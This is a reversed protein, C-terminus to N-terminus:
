CAQAPASPLDELFVPRIHREFLNRTVNASVIAQHRDLMATYFGGMNAAIKFGVHMLQRLSRNYQGSRPDHRLAEVWRASSWGAAEERAPLQRPDIDIVAAYPACLEDSRGLAESYIEKVLLLAEGGAEALGIIEELWTTGATKLHLGANRRALIEHIPRYLSFKDSGSHLSLKLEPPLGFAHVAHRIVAIDQEFERAFLVPDGVYDVGKNFRGSFRPAITTLPVGADALAALILLLDAPRQPIETEDMSVETLFTGPGKAEEIRRYTRAAEQVAALYHRAVRTLDDPEIRIAAEADPLDTEGLLSQHRRIFDEEAEREPPKGIKEAV